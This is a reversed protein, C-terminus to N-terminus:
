RAELIGHRRYDMASTTVPLLVPAAVLHETGDAVELIAPAAVVMELRTALREARRQGLDPSLAIWAVHQVHQAIAIRRLHIEELRGRHRLIAQPGVAPVCAIQPSEVAM